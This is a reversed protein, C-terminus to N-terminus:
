TSSRLSWSAREVLVRRGCGRFAPCCSGGQLPASSFTRRAHRRHPSTRRKRRRWEEPGLPRRSSSRRRSPRGAVGPRRLGTPRRIGAAPHESQILSVPEAAMTRQPTLGIPRETKLVEGRLHEPALHSYRLTMKLDTHGLLEKLAQLGGGRMVFWSAFHHHLDHFRFDDLGAAEAANDFVTRVKRQCWVRGVRLGPMSALVDYVAQRVPVERRRGSKTVELRLVGRSLDVRDLTLGLLEGRRMGTEMAVTVIGALQPEEVEPV